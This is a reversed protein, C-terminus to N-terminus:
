LRVKRWAIVVYGCVAAALAAVVMNRELRLVNAERQSRLLLSNALELLLAYQPQPKPKAVRKTAVAEVEKSDARSITSNSAMIYTRVKFLRVQGLREEPATEFGGARFGAAIKSRTLWRRFPLSFM